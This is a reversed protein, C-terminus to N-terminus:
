VIFRVDQSELVYFDKIYKQAFFIISNRSSSMNFQINGERDIAQFNCVWGGGGGCVSKSM